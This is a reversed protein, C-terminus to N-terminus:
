EEPLIRQFSEEAAKVASEDVGKTSLKTIKLIADKIDIATILIESFVYRVKLDFKNDPLDVGLWEQEEIWENPIENFEIGKYIMYASTKENIESNMEELKSKYENWKDIDEQPTKKDAISEEDYEYEQISGGAVEVKYKPVSLNYKDKVSQAIKNLQILSVPKLKYEM